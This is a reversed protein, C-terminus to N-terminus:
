ICVTNKFESTCSKSVAFPINDKKKCMGNKWMCPELSSCVDANQNNCIKDYEECPKCDRWKNSPDSVQQCCYPYSSSKFGIPKKKNVIIIVVVTVLTLAVIYLYKM